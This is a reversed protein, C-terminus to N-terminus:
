EQEEKKGEREEMEEVIEEIEKRGEEPLHCLIVWLPQRTTLGWNLVTQMHWKTMLKPRCLKLSNVM